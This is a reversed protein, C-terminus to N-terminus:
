ETGDAAPKSAPQAPEVFGKISLHMDPIKELDTIRLRWVVVDTIAGPALEHSDGLADSYNIQAGAGTKENAANLLEPAFDKWVEGEGSGFSTVTALIPGHITKAGENRLRLPMELVHTSPDYRAPDTVVEVETTIDTLEAAAPLAGTIETQPGVKLVSTWVQYTGSRADSWVLHFRGSPDTALGMYDGAARWRTASSIFTVRQQDKSKWTTPIIQLNGTGFADSTRSSVRVPKLFTVGGDLSAAFYEDYHTLDKTRTDFWSVGVIGNQNVAIQAEYQVSGPAGSPDIPVPQAWTKGKDSSYAFVVRGSGSGYDTWVAYMRDRYRGRTADAAFMPFTALSPSLRVFQTGVPAPESFSDGGDASQVISLHSTAESPPTPKQHFDFDAFPVILTGDSLLHISTVNIGIVGKGSAALVPMGFTRGGDDSRVVSIQYEPYGHLYAIYVRGDHPGGTRDVIMQPHDAGVVAVVPKSWSRGGDESRHVYLASRERGKEDRVSSLAAFLAAGDGAFAVQPDAGGFEVQEPFVSDVWTNGGDSSAYVKCAWGGSPRTATIVGAIVQNPNRPDVAASIEVHPIDGDRSVLINPGILVHEVGDAAALVPHSLVIAAVSLLIPVLSSGSRM